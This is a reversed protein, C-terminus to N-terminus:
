IRLKLYARMMQRQLYEIMEQVVHLQIATKCLHDRGWKEGCVFCLGKSRRFEKLHTWKDEVSGRAAESNKKEEVTKSIGHAPPQPLPQPQHVHARRTTPSPSYQSNWATSGDGMEEYLLAMTYATDLDPPQQIAVLVRVGPKLGDLFRTLLNLPDSRADYATIQDVLSSYRQVYDEVSGSQAIHYLRRLLVQHQNRMFRAQVALVLEEWGAQPSKALFSELWTAAAGVFQSTGYSVWQTAPSNWRHFYEECRRQWLKPNNGDFHPLEVRPTSSSADSVTLKGGMHLSSFSRGSNTGGVLPPAGFACVTGRHQNMVGHGFQGGAGSGPPRNVEPTGDASASPGSNLARDVLATLHAIEASFQTRTSELESGISTKIEALDLEVARFPTSPTGSPRSRSTRTPSSSAFRM